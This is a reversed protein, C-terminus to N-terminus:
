SVNKLQKFEIKLCGTLKNNWLQVLLFFVFKNVTSTTKLPFNLQEQIPPSHNPVNCFAIQSINYNETTFRKANFRRCFLYIYINSAIGKPKACRQTTWTTLQQHTKWWGKKEVCVLCKLKAGVTSYSNAIPLLKM